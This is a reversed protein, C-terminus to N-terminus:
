SGAIDKLENWEVEYEITVSVAFSQSVSAGASQMAVTWYQQESPPTGSSEGRYLSNNLINKGFAKYGNWSSKLTTVGASTLPVVKYNRGVEALTDISSPTVTTDDNIFLTVFTAQGNQSYPTMKVIIHSKVVTWHDYLASMQDYYYPQHGTGTTNPDYLNNCSLNYTFLSGASSGWAIFSEVYRHTQRLRLPLGKGISVIPKRKYTFKTLTKKTSKRTMKKKARFKRRTYAM